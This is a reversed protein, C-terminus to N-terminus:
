ISNMYHKEIYNGFMLAKYDDYPKAIIQMGIPMNTPYSHGFPITLAPFGISNFLFTNRLLSERVTFFKDKIHVTSESLLPASIITTPLVMFDIKKYLSLFGKKLKKITNLAEHYDSSKIESGKLLQDRLEPGYDKFKKKIGRKHINYAEFLRVISWSSFFDSSNMDVNTFSLSKDSTLLNVFRNFSYKVGKELYDLFYNYPIGIAITRKNQLLLKNLNLLSLKQIELENMHSVFREEKKRITSFVISLDISSIGMIGIHDLSPSLKYVGYNNISNLTPKFGFIGCLSSPVRTSGGTDTGLACPILGGAVAVASGGSSGGSMRDLSYPNKSDGFLINKGTIGAAFENLNNTGILISGAKKMRKIVTSDFKSIHNLFVNSGATLRVNRVAIIDKISFPIGHLPGRYIGRKLESELREAEQLSQEKLITIFSNLKPNLKEIAILYYEVLDTPKLNGNKIEQSLAIISRRKSLYSKVM